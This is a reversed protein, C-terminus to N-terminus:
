FKISKNTCHQESVCWSACSAFLSQFIKPFFRYHFIFTVLLNKSGPIIFCTTNANQKNPFATGWPVLLMKMHFVSAQQDTAKGMLHWSLAQVPQKIQMEAWLVVLILGLHWIQTGDYKHICLPFPEKPSNRWQELLTMLLVCDWNPWMWLCRNCVYMEAFVSKEIKIAYIM